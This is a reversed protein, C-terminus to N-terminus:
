TPSNDVYVMLEPLTLLSSLHSMCCQLYYVDHDFSGSDSYAFFRFRRARILHVGVGLYCVDGRIHWQVNHPAYLSGTPPRPNTNFPFNSTEKPTGVALLVINKLRYQPGGSGSVGLGQGHM